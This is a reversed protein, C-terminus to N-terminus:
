PHNGHPPQTPSPKKEPVLKMGCKPCRGPKDQVVEPHMPCTYRQAAPSGEKPPQEARVPNAPKAHGPKERVLKMGCKPCKGPRDQRVEPHMPCTYVTQAKAGTDPNSATGPPEGAPAPAADHGAHQHTVPQGAEIQHGGM